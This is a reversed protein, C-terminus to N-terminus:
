PSAGSSEIRSPDPKRGSPLVRGEPYDAGEVSRDVSADWAALENALRQAIEPRKRLLDQAEAPDGVVNYLEFTAGETYNRVLKWDGDIWARGTDVRFGIPKERRAPEREFLEVLSIGDHVPHIADAALGAVEVLTPFIDLTSAPFSSV